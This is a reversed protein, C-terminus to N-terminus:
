QHGKEVYQNASSISFVSEELITHIPRFLTYHLSQSLPLAFIATYLATAKIKSM